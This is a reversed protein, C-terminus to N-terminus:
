VHVALMQKLKPCLFDIFQQRIKYNNNTSELMWLSSSALKPMGEVADLTKLQPPINLRNRITIGLGAEVAAWISLMNGSVFDVQWNINCEKLGNQAMDRYHCPAPPVILSLPKKPNYVFDSNAVWSTSLESILTADEMKIASLLLVIDLQNEKVLISLNHNSDVHTIIRFNPYSRKFQGLLNPLYKVALDQPIGIRLVGELHSSETASIAEDNIALIKHAYVLLNNGAETLSVGSKSRYFLKQGVTNELKGIQMSIAGQSRSVYEAALAISGYDAAAVFSRLIAIDLNKM